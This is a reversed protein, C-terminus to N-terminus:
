KLIEILNQNVEQLTPIGALGLRGVSLSALQVATKAASWPSGSSFLRSFFVAAFIDGAGTSDVLPIHPAPFYRVDGKWYVRAGDQAETVALIECLRAMEIIENEDGGADELSIAAVKFLPLVKEAWDWNISHVLGDEDWSRMWGQPTACLFANKSFHMVTELPIEQAVPGFHIIDSNMWKTPIARYRIKEAQAYCYQKRVKGQMTNEFQTAVSSDINIIDMKEKDSFPIDGPYSTVLRVAHGLAYATLSSYSATGGMQFGSPTIDQTIHGLVLYSLENSSM